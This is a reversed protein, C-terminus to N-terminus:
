QARRRFVVEGSGFEEEMKDKLRGILCEVTDVDMQNADTTKKCTRGDGGGKELRMVYTNGKRVLKIREGTSNEEIYSGKKSFVVTNGADVMASVAALPKKVDADLFKLACKKGGHKRFELVAEGDVTIETGNAAVLKPKEAIKKRQVGGKRRPWVSRSAGSDVTVEVLDDKRDEDESNGVMDVAEDEEEEVSLVAFRNQVEVKRPMWADMQSREEATEGVNEVSGVTWVVDADEKRPKEMTHEEECDDALGVFTMGCEAAKHGVKGCRWCTGQYGKGFSKGRGYPYQQMQGKGAVEGKGGIGWPWGKGGHGKVGEKGKGKGQYGKGMAKAGKGKGKEPCERAFHGYKGCAWCMNMGFVADVEDPFDDWTGGACKDQCPHGCPMCATSWDHGSGGDVGGIEMPVAGGGEIKNTAWAVLRERLEKYGDESEKLDEVRAEVKERLDKPVLQMLAGMKWIVPVKAGDHEKMMRTWRDEWALIGTVVEAMKVERPYMCEKHIRLMRAMTRRNYQRALRGWAKIGDAEEKGSDNVVTQAEGGTVLVLWGFLEKALGEMEDEDNWNMEKMAKEKTTDEVEGRKTAEAEAWEMVVKAKWNAMGIATKFEFSWQKWKAEGGLFRDKDMMFKELMKGRLGGGRDAGGHGTGGVPTAAAEATVWREALEGMRKNFELQQAQQDKMYTMLAGLDDM